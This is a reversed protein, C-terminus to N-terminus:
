DNKTDTSNSDTSNKRKLKEYQPEIHILSEYNPNTQRVTEYNPDGESNLSSGGIMSYSDIVSEYNCENNNFNQFRNRRDNKVIQQDYEISNDIPKRNLKGTNKVVKAYM